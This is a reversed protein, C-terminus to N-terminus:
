FDQEVFFSESGSLSDKDKNVILVIAKGNDEACLFKENVKSKFAFTDGESKLM